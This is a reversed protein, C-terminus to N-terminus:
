RSAPTRWTMVIRKFDKCLDMLDRLREAHDVIASTDEDFADVFLITEEKNQVSAIRDDANPIGLPILAIQYRKSPRRQQNEAYYNLLASTKGMGSDALIIMHRYISDTALFKGIVSFLKETTAVVNRIEAERSPDVNSCDPHVYYRTSRQIVEPTFLESGFSKKLLRENRRQHFLPIYGQLVAGIFGVLIAVTAILEGLGFSNLDIM